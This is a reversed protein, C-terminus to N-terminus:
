RVQLNTPDKYSEDSAVQLKEYIWSELEDADRRFNFYNFWNFYKTMIPQKKLWNNQSNKPPNKPFELQIKFLNQPSERPNQHM